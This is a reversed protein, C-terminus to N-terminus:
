RDSYLETGGGTSSIFDKRGDSRREGGEKVEEEEASSKPSYFGSKFSSGGRLSLNESEAAFREKGSSKGFMNEEHKFCFIRKQRNPGPCKEKNVIV